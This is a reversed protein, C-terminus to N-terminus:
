DIGVMAENTKSKSKEIQPGNATRRSIDSITISANLLSKGDQDLLVRDWIPLSTLLGMQVVGDNAFMLAADEM